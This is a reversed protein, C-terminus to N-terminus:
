ARTNRHEHRSMILSQGDTCRDCADDGLKGRTISQEHHSVIARVIGCHNSTSGPGIHDLSRIWHTTALTEREIETHTVEGAICWVHNDNDIGITSRIRTAKGPDRHKGCCSAPRHLCV